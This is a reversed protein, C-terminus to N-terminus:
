FYRNGVDQRQQAAPSDALFTRLRDNFPKGLLQPNHMAGSLVARDAGLQEELVDCVAIHARGGIERAQKPAIDWAGSVVLKPFTTAALVELAVDAEWPPPERLSRVAAALDKATPQVSPQDFGLAVMFQPLLREPASPDGQDRWAALREVLTEVAPNGRAVAFAPPEIVTLSTIAGPQRAAALLCLVGGYSHGVLHAGDGLLACVDGAQSDFDVREAPPSEGYGRRDM